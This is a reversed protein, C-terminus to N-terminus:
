RGNPAGCSKWSAKPKSAKPWWGCGSCRACTSSRGHSSGRAPNRGRILDLPWGLMRELAPNMWLIRGPIDLLAIGDRAHDLILGPLVAGFAAPMGCSEPPGAPRQATSQDHRDQRQTM